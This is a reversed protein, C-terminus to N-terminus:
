STLGEYSRDPRLVQPHSHIRAPTGGLPPLYSLEDGHRWEALSNSRIGM